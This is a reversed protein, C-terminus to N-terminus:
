GAVFTETVEGTALDVSYYYTGKKHIVTSSDESMSIIFEDTFTVQYTLTDGSENLTLQEPESYTYFGSRPLPLYILSGEGLPSTANPIYCISNTTEHPTGLMMYWLITGYDPSDIRSKISCYSEDLFPALVDEYTKHQFVITGSALFKQEQIDCVALLCYQFRDENDADIKQIMSPFFKSEKTATPDSETQDPTWYSLAEYSGDALKHLTICAPEIYIGTSSHEGYQSYNYVAYCILTSVTLCDGDETKEFIVHSAKAFCYADLNRAENTMVAASIASHIAKSDSFVTEDITSNYENQTFVGDAILKEALTQTSENLTATLAAYSIQVADGRLFTDTNVSIPLIGCYTALAYPNDWDFYFDWLFDQSETDSYGLARLVYTLYMASSAAEDSGFLTESVGNTLGNEYAYGVYKDAWEAVDTFPHTWSGDLAETEKGLLRILMVLAEVRTPARNLEFNTSGDANVQTGQFLGLTNLDSSLNEELATDGTGSALATPFLSVCLVLCLLLGLLKKMRNM